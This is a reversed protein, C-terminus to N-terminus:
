SLNKSKYRLTSRSIGLIKSAKTQNGDTIALVHRIIIAEVQNNFLELINRHNCENELLEDLMQKILSEINSNPM